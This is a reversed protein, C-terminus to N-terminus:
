VVVPVFIGIRQFPGQGGRRGFVRELLQWLARVPIMAVRMLLHRTNDGTRQLRCPPLRVLHLKRAFHHEVRNSRFLSLGNSGKPLSLAHFHNPDSSTSHAADIFATIDAELEATSRHVGRQLEKRTLEA